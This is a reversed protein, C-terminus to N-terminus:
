EETPAFRMNYAEVVEDSPDFISLLQSKYIPIEPTKSFPAFELFQSKYEGNGVAAEVILVLPKDLVIETKTESVVVGVVDVGTSALKMMKVNSM